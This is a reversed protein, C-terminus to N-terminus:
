AFHDPRRRASYRAALTSSLGVIIMATGLNWMIVLASADLM